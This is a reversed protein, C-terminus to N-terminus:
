FGYIFTGGLLVYLHSFAFLLLRHVRVPLAHVHSQARARRLSDAQQQVRIIETEALVLEASSRRITEELIRRKSEAETSKLHLDRELSAERDAAIAFDQEKQKLQRETEEFRLRADDCEKKAQDLSVRASTARSLISVVDDLQHVPMVTSEVIPIKPVDDGMDDVLHVESAVTIANVDDVGDGVVGDDMRKAISPVVAHVPRKPLADKSEQIQRKAHNRM